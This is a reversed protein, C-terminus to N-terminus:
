QKPDVVDPNSVPVLSQRYFRGAVPEGEKDVLKFLPIEQELNIAVIRFIEGTASEKYGRSFPTKKFLIRVWSGVALLDKIARHEPTLLDAYQRSFVLHFNRQTVNIPSTGLCDLYRGNMGNRCKGLLFELFRKSKHYKMYRFVARKLNLIMREALASKHLQRLPVWSICYKKLATQMLVGAYELGRDMELLNPHRGCALMMAEFKEVLESSTKTKLPIILLLFRSFADM